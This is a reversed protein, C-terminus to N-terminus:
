AYLSVGSLEKARRAVFEDLAEAVALDMPPQEYQALMEKWIRNARTAADESGALAWTDYALRDSLSTAHFATRYREQTHSTGLHHGGPGVEAIAALALSAEDVAFGELFHRFMALNELDIVFKEYSVTLGGDLWGAAHMILNTHALVAPWLSWQAEFASQADASKSTTLGGSGRYPMRYRRALQGGVLAAWAGEPTGFAPSGNRLDIHTTFGGYIVPAGPQVLQTLAAGALVEANQQALAAAMTVPSMVGALIFPTIFTVQGARAYTILGGLMREDYRLPSNVNIVDGTVPDGDLSGYVLGMMALTDATIVRGHAGEMVVKDTLTLGARVRHLHRVNVPVDQATVQEWAAFHLAHCSQSLKLLKEYDAMTGVRRGHDLDTAYVMGGCPGFTISDGGIVVDHAPNRARWRFSSPATKLAELVLGRDPWVHRAAQDVKAGARQWIDLAEDDHFDIGINELIDLSALHIRELADPDLWDYPPRPHRIHDFPIGLLPLTPTSRPRRQRQKTM